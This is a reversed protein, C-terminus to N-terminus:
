DGVRTEESVPFSAFQHLITPIGDNKFFLTALVQNAKITWFMHGHNNITVTIQNLKPTFLEAPLHVNDGYLRQIKVGNIYLHAHGEIVETEQGVQTSMLDAMSQRERPPASMRYNDLQLSLNYGTMFDAYLDLSLAPQLANKPVEIPLHLHSMASSDNVVQASLMCPMSLNLLVAILFVRKM